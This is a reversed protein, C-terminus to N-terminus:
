IKNITRKIFIDAPLFIACGIAYCIIDIVSFTSGILVRFFAINSLGLFTVIDFFQGIEVALAFFFVGVPLLKLNAPFFIRLFACILVTVLIDGVYPRVINDHVYLAILVEIVLLILFLVAYVLRQVKHKM